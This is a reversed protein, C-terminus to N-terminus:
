RGAAGATGAGARRRRDGSCWVALAWTCVTCLARTERPRLQPRTTNLIGHPVDSAPLVRPQAAPSCLHPQFGLSLHARGRVSCSLPSTRLILLGVSFLSFPLLAGQLRHSQFHNSLGPQTPAPPPQPGPPPTFLPPVAPAPRAPVPSLLVPRSSASSGEGSPKGAFLFHGSCLSLGRLSVQLVPATM